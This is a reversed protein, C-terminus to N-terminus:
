STLLTFFISPLCNYWTSKRMGSSHTSPTPGFWDQALISAQMHERDVNSTGSAEAVALHSLEEQLAHALMEDSEVNSQLSDYHSEREYEGDYYGSNQPSSTSCYTNTSFQEGLELLNLGWRLVDPDQDYTIM